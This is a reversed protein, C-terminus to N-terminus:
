ESDYLKTITQGLGIATLTMTQLVPPLQSAITFASFALVSIRPELVEAKGSNTVANKVREQLKRWLVENAVKVTKHLPELGGCYCKM